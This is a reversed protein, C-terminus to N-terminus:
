SIFQKIHMIFLHKIIILKMLKRFFNCYKSDSAQLTINNDVTIIM